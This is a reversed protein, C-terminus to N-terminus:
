KKDRKEQKRISILMDSLSFDLEPTFLIGCEEGAKAESLDDKGRKLSTVKVKGIEKEDRKLILDDGKTIRGSIVKCGAVNKKNFPFTAMIKAKGLIEVSGKKVFEEIKEFLRYIIDFSELYVGETDALKKMVASGLFGNGGTVIIRTAKNIMHKGLLIGTNKGSKKEFEISISSGNV